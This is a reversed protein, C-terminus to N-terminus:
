RRYRGFSRGNLFQEAVWDMRAFDLDMEGLEDLWRELGLIRHGRGIVQTHFTVTVVGDEYDRLM